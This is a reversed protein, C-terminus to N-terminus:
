LNFNTEDVFYITCGHLKYELLKTLFEQRKRKNESTNIYQPEVHPKKFTYCVGDLMRAVTSTGIQLDYCENLREALERLILKNKVSLASCMFLVHEM